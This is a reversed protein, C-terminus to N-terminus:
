GRVLALPIYILTVSYGPFHGFSEFIPHKSVKSTKGLNNDHQIFVEFYRCFSLNRSIYKLTSDITFTYLYLNRVIKPVSCAVWFNYAGINESTWQTQYSTPSVGRFILFFVFVLTLYAYIFSGSTDQLITM